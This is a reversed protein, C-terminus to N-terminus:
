LYHGIIPLLEKRGWRQTDTDRAFFLAIGADKLAQDGTDSPPSLEFGIGIGESGIASELVVVYPSLLEAITLGTCRSVAIVQDEDFVLFVFIGDQTKQTHVIAQLHANGLVGSAFSRASEHPQWQNLPILSDLSKLVRENAESAPLDGMLVICGVTPHEGIM